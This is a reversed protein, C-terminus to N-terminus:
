AEKTPVIYDVFVGPVHVQDPRIDGADVICDAQVIVIDAATAMLSNFNKESYEFVLNGATDAKHAKILAVDAHLPLEFVYEKGNITRREKGAELDTGVSTPTYFGGIGM